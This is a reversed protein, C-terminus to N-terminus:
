LTEERGAIFVKMLVSKKQLNQIIFKERGGVVLRPNHHIRHKWSEVSQNKTENNKKPKQENKPNFNLIPFSSTDIMM